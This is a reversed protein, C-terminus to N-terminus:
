TFSYILVVLVSGLFVGKLIKSVLNFHKKNQARYLYWGAACIPLLLFLVMSLSVALSFPVILGNKILLIVMSAILTLLTLSIFKTARIGAIIAFTKSNVLLDGDIDEMDKILERTLTTIFAFFAFLLIFLYQILKESPINQDKLLPLIEPHAIFVILPVIGALLAILLNGLLPFHQLKWSYLFLLLTSLLTVQQMTKSTFVYALIVTSLTLLIYLYLLPQASLFHPQRKKNLLDSKRDFLDNIVYGGAATLIVIIYPLFSSTDFQSTTDKKYLLIELCTFILSLIILNKSRITSLLDKVM